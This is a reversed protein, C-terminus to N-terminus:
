LANLVASFAPFGLFLLFGAFLAVMPLSM